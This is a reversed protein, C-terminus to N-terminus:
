LFVKGLILDSNASLWECVEGNDKALAIIEEITKKATEFKLAKIDIKKPAKIAWYTKAYKQLAELLELSLEDRSASELFRDFESILANLFMAEKNELDKEDRLANLKLAEWDVGKSFDDKKMYYFGARTIKACLCIEDISKGEIYLNKVLERKSM